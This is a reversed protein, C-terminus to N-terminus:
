SEAWSPRPTEDQRGEWVMGGVFSPAKLSTFIRGCGDFTEVLGGSEWVM